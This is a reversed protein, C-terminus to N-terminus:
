EAIASSHTPMRGPVSPSNTSASIWSSSARRGSRDRSGRRAVGVGGPQHDLRRARGIVPQEGAVLGAIRQHEFGRSRQRARMAAPTTARARRRHPAARRGARRAPRGARRRASDRDASRARPPRRSRRCGPPSSGGGRRRSRARRRRAPSRARRHRPGVPGPPPVLRHAAPRDRHMRHAADRRMRVAEVGAARQMQQLHQEARDIHRAAPAVLRRM